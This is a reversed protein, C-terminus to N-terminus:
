STIFISGGPVHEVNVADVVGENEGGDVPAGHWVRNARRAACGLGEREREM